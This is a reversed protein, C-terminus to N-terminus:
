GSGGFTQSNRIPRKVKSLRWEDKNEAFRDFLPEIKEKKKRQSIEHQNAVKFFTPAVEQLWKPEIVTLQHMYEEPLNAVTVWVSM